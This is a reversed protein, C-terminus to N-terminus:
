KLLKIFQEINMLGIYVMYTKSKLLFVLKLKDQVIDTIYIPTGDAIGYNKYFKTKLIYPTLFKINYNDDEQFITYIGTKGEYELKKM